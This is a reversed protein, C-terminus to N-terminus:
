ANKLPLTVIAKTGSGLQSEFELTGDYENIINYTISLGLGTGKGPDKTTFFPDTIKPLIDAPIGCGTDLISINIRGKEIKTFITITGNDEIAQTSNAIINLFVQHLRGENCNVTCPKNTYNKIVEIRNKINNNLMVLCNDIISNINCETSQLDDKRSYHNLSMVIDAARKVGVHIGEILPFVEELHEKLNENFYSEIGAIGGYIFNLPNNIEHAVGAALVGLSAMKESQILNNQAVKLNNLATELEKRQYYLNENTSTLEENASALEETREKVLLELNNRYNELERETIKKETIDVMALITGSTVGNSHIIPAASVLFYIEHGDKAAFPIEYQHVLQNNKRHNINVKEIKDNPNLLLKFGIEGIIENPFYGLTETFKQNVFQVRDDNDVMMIVENMSEMLTRYKEESEKLEIESKKVETIDISIGRLGIPKQNEIIAATFIQVPFTSGDKKIGTYEVSKTPEGSFREKINAIARERDSPILLSLLNLGSYIDEKSYGYQDIGNKNVYTIVGNIDAEWITQPLLDSMDRFKKESLAIIEQSKKIETIDTITGIYGITEGEIIEPIADGLVWVISGDPRLFRYEAISTTKTEADNKWKKNLSLKDEPHVANLWGDGLAEDFNLGSLESWKPNVYTTYGDPRTRFIGVPSMQALSQFLQQSEQLAKEAKKRETINIMAGISGQTKGNSDFIPAGSVLFVFKQGNKAIFTLEYNSTINNIREINAEEILAFDKPDHLIKYGIKGIIEEPSYGLLETFKKNVYQVKHDNDAMIVVENMSDMLTRYNEESEKLALEAKKRETINEVFGDYYLIEGKDNRIATANEIVDIAKGFKDLWKSEFNKVYDNQEILNKFDDRVSDVYFNETELNRKELERISEFSLMQLLAPNATLIKGDPTTQYIGIQANEFLTRYSKESELLEKEAKKRETIDILSFQLLTTNDSQFALLHVEADWLERNQKQHLWEFVVSGNKLAQEVYYTAKQSSPTGDYQVPASVDLPTKGITEEKSSFGYLNIASTNVDIFKYSTPEMVIIPIRSSDFVRRRFLESQKLKEEAKILETIDNILIHRSKQGKYTISHAAIDVYIIEGNKKLHRSIGKSSYASDANKINKLFEPIDGKPRIDKLSFSLFDEKSYGYHDITANNVELIAFTEVDYIFMPQPNKEFMYRYGEDSEKLKEEARLREKTDKIARELARKNITYISYGVIGIIIFAITNDAFYDIASSNSLNLEKKNLILFITLMLINFLVSLIIASRYKNILIVLMSLIALIFVISDLRVITDGKDMWIVIWLIIQTSIVLTYASLSFFGKIVFFLCASIILLITIEPLIVPLYLRNYFSSIIEIYGTYIIMLVLCGIISICLNFLFRAKQQISFDSNQYKNLIKPLENRDKKFSNDNSKEDIGM